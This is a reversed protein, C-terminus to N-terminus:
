FGGVFDLCPNYMSLIRRVVRLMCKAHKSDCRGADHVGARVSNHGVSESRVSRTQKPSLTAHSGIGSDLAAADESVLTLTSTKQQVM